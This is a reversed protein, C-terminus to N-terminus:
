LHCATRAPRIGLRLLVLCGGGDALGVTSRQGPTLEGDCTGTARGARRVLPNQQSGHHLIHETTAARPNLSRSQVPRCCLCSTGEHRSRRCQPGAGEQDDGHGQLGGTDDMLNWHAQKTVLALDIGDALSAQLAETSVAKTNNNTKHLLAGQTWDALKSSPRAM